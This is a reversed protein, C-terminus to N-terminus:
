RAPCTVRRGARDGPPRHAPRPPRRPPLSLDRGTIEEVRRIRYHVTNVHLHLADATRTWSGDYALFSRM